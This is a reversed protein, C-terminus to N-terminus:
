RFRTSHFLTETPGILWSMTTKYTEFASAGFDRFQEETANGSSLLLVPIKKTNCCMNETNYTLYQFMLREYLARFSATLDGFYLPSGIILADSSRIKELTETLGDKHICTGANKGLKCGFCSICGTFKELKFLDVFEIEAGNEAAGKAAEQILMDTNWGKRPGANVAIVRM